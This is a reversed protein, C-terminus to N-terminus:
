KTNEQLTRCMKEFSGVVIVESKRFSNGDVVLVSFKTDEPFAAAVRSLDSSSNFSHPYVSVIYDTNILCERTEFAKEFTTRESGDPEEKVTRVQKEYVEDIKLV